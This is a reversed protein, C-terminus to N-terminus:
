KDLMVLLSLQKIELLLVQVLGTKMMGMLVEMTLM